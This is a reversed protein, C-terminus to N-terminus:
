HQFDHTLFISITNSRSPELADMCASKRFKPSKSLYPINYVAISVINRKLPTIMYGHVRIILVQSLMKM